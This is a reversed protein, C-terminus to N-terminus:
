RKFNATKVKFTAKTFLRMITTNDLLSKRVKKRDTRRETQENTLKIIMMKTQGDRQRDQEYNDRAEPLAPGSLFFFKELLKNKVM